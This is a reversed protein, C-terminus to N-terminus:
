FVSSLSQQRYLLAGVNYGRCKTSVVTINIIIIIIIDVVLITKINTTTSKRKEM